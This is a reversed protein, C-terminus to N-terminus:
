LIFLSHAAVLLFNSFIVTGYEKGHDSQLVEAKRQTCLKKMQGVGMVEFVIKEPPM